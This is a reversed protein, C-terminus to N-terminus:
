PGGPGTGPAPLAPDRGKKKRGGKERGGGLEGLGRRQRMIEEQQLRIQEEQQRILGTECSSLFFLLSFGFIIFRSKSIRIEFNPIGNKSDPMAWRRSFPM